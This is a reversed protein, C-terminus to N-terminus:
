PMDAMAAMVGHSWFMDAVTSTFSLLLPLHDAITILAAEALDGRRALVATVLLLVLLLPAARDSRAARVERCTITKCTQMRRGVADARQPKSARWTTAMLAVRATAMQLGRTARINRMGGELQQEDLPVDAADRSRFRELRITCGPYASAQQSTANVTVAVLLSVVM